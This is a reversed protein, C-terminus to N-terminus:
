VTWLNLQTDKVLDVQKDQATKLRKTFLDASSKKIANLEKDLRALRQKKAEIQDLVGEDAQDPNGDLQVSLEKNLEEKEVDLNAHRQLQVELDNIFVPDMELHHDASLSKGLSDKYANFNYALETLMSKINSANDSMKVPKPIPEFAELLAHFQFTLKVATMRTHYPSLLCANEYKILFWNDHSSFSSVSFLPQDCMNNDTDLYKLNYNYDRLKRAALNIEPRVGIFYLKSFDWHVNEPNYNESFIYSDIM